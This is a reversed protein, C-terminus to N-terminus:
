RPAPPQVMRASAGSKNERRIMLVIGIVLSALVAVGCIRVTTMILAGYKGTIPSYHFCLLFLDRVRSGIKDHSADALADKLQQPSYVVGSLYHSIRGSPTLIVLGSPHAYQHIREDYVYGFGVEKALKRISTEDGTLFHWNAAADPRGYRKLYTKKKAAALAPTEGPDISVDIVDFQNGIEWDLNQLSGIMGNLVFTCLMPCGYYGMVLIVPKKDFCDALKIPNGNEDRFSTDLSVQAGVNQVFTIRKLTEDSVPQAIAFKTTLCVCIFIVLLYRKM